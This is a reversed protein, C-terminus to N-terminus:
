TKPLKKSAENVTGTGSATLETLKGYLTLMPPTYARKKVLVKKQQKKIKKEEM